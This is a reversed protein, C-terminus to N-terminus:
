LLELWASLLCVGPKKTGYETSIPLAQQHCFREQNLSQVDCTNVAALCIAFYPVIFTKLSLNASVVPVSLAYLELSKLIHTNAREVNEEM